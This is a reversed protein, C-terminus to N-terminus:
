VRSVSHAAPTFSAVNQPSIIEHKVFNLRPVHHGRLMRMALPIVNDGYKEPFYGVAGVLRSEPNCLETLTQDSGNHCVIAGHQERGAERFAQLAGLGTADNISIVLIRKARTRSLYRRVAAHASEFVGVTHLTKIEDTSVWAARELIGLLSAQIRANPISGAKPLDLLLIQDMMGGWRADCWQSLYRGALLGAEVNNAGFFVAGPQPIELAITPISAQRLKEAIRGALAVETQSEIVLDVHEQIFTETNELARKGSDENDLVLLEVDAAAACREISATVLKSFTESADQIGYGIRFRKRALPRIAIKYKDGVRSLMGGEVLGACLRHATTKSLHTREVIEGLRLCRMDDEFAKLIKIARNLSTM